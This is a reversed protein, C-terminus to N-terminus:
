NDYAMRQMFVECLPAYVSILREADVSCFPNRRSSSGLGGCFVMLDCIARRVVQNSM